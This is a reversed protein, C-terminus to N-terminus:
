EVVEADVIEGAGERRRDEAQELTAVAVRAAFEAIRSDIGDVGGLADRSERQRIRAAVPNSPDDDHGFTEPELLAMVRMYRDFVAAFASSRQNLPAVFKSGLGKETLDSVQKREVGLADGLQFLRNELMEALNTLRTKSGREGLTTGHGYVPWDNQAALRTVIAPTLNHIRAVEAINGGSAVFSAKAAEQQEPPLRVAATGPAADNVDPLLRELAAGPTLPAAGPEDLDRRSRTLKDRRPAPAEIRSFDIVVHSPPAPLRPTGASASAGSSAM